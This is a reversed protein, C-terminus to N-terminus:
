NADKKSESTIDDGLTPESFLNNILPTARYARNDGQSPLFDRYADQLWNQRGM